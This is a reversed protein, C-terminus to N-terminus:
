ERGPRHFVLRLDAREALARCAVPQLTLLPLDSDEPVPILRVDAPHVSTRRAGEFTAGRAPTGSSLFLGAAAVLIWRALRAGGAREGHM